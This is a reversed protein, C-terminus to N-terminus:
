RSEKNTSDPYFHRSSSNLPPDPIVPVLYSILIEKATTEPNKSHIQRRCTLHQIHYSPTEPVEPFYEQLLPVDSNSMVWSVNKPIWHHCQQFLLKTKATSFGELSYAVFSTKTEKVYPPDLYVFDGPEPLTMSISCDMVVFNVSQILRHIEMWHTHEIIEPNIYHGYPVNYGNPGLRFVGRFGTKNLFYFLAVGYTRQQQEPTLHNYQQRIWYYYSERSTKAEEPTTPKRNPPNILSQPNQPISLFEQVLEQITDFLARPQIQVHQYFAILVPNTDYAYIQGQIRCPTESLLAFLVSGGGIFLEYYNQIKPPFAPLITDLLQTKGGVWKLLPKARKPTQM